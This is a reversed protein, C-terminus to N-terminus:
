QCSLESYLIKVRKLLVNSPPPTIETGEATLPDENLPIVKFVQQVLQLTNKNIIKLKQTTRKYFALILDGNAAIASTSVATLYIFNGKRKWSGTFPIFTGATILEELAKSQNFYVTGDTNLIYQSMNSNESTNGITSVFTGGLFFENGQQFENGAEAFANMFVAFLLIKAFQKIYM